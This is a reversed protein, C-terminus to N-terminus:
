ENNEFEKTNWILNVLQIVLEVRKKIETKGFKSYPEFSLNNEEMFKKFRPNNHYTDEVLSAAFINGDTSGYKSRKIKYKANSLSANISKRLLLLAGISNRYSTYEEKGSFVSRFKEFDNCIIHEVEFPNKGQSKMYEIYNSKVGTQEEIFSTIRALINKVYRKTFNNLVFSQIVNSDYKLDDYHKKLNLKLDNISLARIERTMSSIGREIINRAVSHYNTVKSNIFLDIYRATLNLKKIVINEDDNLDVASMLLQPQM